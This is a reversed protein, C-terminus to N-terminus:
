LDGSSYTDLGKSLLRPGICDRCKCLPFWCCGRSVVAGINRPVAARDSSSAHAEASWSGPPPMGAPRVMGAPSEAVVVSPIRM